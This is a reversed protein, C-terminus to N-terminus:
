TMNKSVESMTKQIKYNNLDVKLFINYLCISLTHKHGILVLRTILILSIISSFHMRSMWLVGGTVVSEFCVDSKEVKTVNGTVFHRRYSPLYIRKNKM